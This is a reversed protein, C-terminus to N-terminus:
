TTRAALFSEIVLAALMAGVVFQWVRQREERQRDEIRRESQAASQIRTVAAQFQEPTLRAPDSEAPDVNVAFRRPPGDPSPISGIGPTPAAGSPEQGVLYDSGRTRTGVLYRVAEHLFPVFSAHRPFDDWQRDLDSALLLVRGDGAPCDLLATEGTTFRALGQCAAGRIEAIRDFTVLGLSPASAGFARFVPHRLDAPVLSRAVGAPAGPRQAEQLTFVGSVVGAMVDGDVQPGAAVLVGGGREIYEALLARGSRDLGRTSLVITAAHQGLRPRNWTSLQAGGAGAIQYTAGGAGGAVLAHRVYFAERPLDGDATVILIAPLSTADLVLYRVNDGEIGERDEVAVSVAQGRAGPLTVDAAQGPAITAAGEGAPRDDVRLTVRAERAAPSFNRVTAVIRDNISRVSAVALNPPAAGVDVVEVRATEPVAARDGADWGSEQLDSVIVIAGRRGELLDVAQNLAARYRTAGFGASAARVASLALGRDESPASAVHAEHAFTLVGVLDDAPARRIADAALTRAREFREPTSLSLSTDLAVITVGGSGLAAGSPFFPRAFALALLILAAVRLALLLLERLHRRDTREVPARRLLRVVAFKVRAEPERKLLHLVIPIAAAAAGFLFLPALFNM